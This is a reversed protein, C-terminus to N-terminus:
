LQNVMRNSETCLVTLSPLNKVLNKSICHYGGVLSTECMASSKKGRWCALPEQAWMWVKYSTYSSLATSLSAWGPGPGVHKRQCHDPQRCSARAWSKRSRLTFFEQPMASSATLALDVMDPWM